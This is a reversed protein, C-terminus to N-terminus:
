KAFGLKQIWAPIDATRNATLGDLVTSNPCHLRIKDMAVGIPSGGSTCFPIVTKGAFDYSELFTDVIMPANYWWIPFGIFVVDYSDMQEVQPRIAPRAKAAVEKSAADLCAQYETPYPTEPQIEFLTGGTERGIQEAVQKTTGSWSFYAVLIKHEGAGAASAKPLMGGFCAMLAMLCFFISWVLAYRM